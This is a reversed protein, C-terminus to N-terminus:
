NRRRSCFPLIAMRMASASPFRAEIDYSMAKRVADSLSTPIEPVVDRLELPPKGLIRLANAPNTFGEFPLRNALWYFLTIATAYIDAAPKASRSDMFQEPAMYGLTGRAEGEATIGSFGATHFNKALGFDGLKALLKGEHKTVLINSPKVDRHVLGRRHTAELASLVQSILGCAMRIRKEVPSARLAAIIDVQDIYEMAIYSPDNTWDVAHFRVVSPHDLQSLVTAERLFLKTEQASPRIRNNLVKIALSENTKDKVAHYVAGMGGAAILRTLQFGRINPISNPSQPESSHQQAAAQLLAQLEPEQEYLNRPRPPSGHIPRAIPQELDTVIQECDRCTELHQSIQGFQEETVACLVFAQLQERAPCEQPTMRVQGNQLVLTTTKEISSFM